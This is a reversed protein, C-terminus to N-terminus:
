VGQAFPIVANSTVNVDNAVIYNSGEFERFGASIIVRKALMIISLYPNEQMIETLDLDGREFTFNEGNFTVTMTGTGQDFNVSDFPSEYLTAVLQKDEFKFIPDNRLFELFEDRTM